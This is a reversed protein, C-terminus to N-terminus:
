PNGDRSGLARWANLDITDSIAQVSGDARALNVISSHLSTSSVIAHQPAQGSWCSPKNPGLVHNYLMWSLAVKIWPRGRVFTRLQLPTPSNAAADGCRAVYADFSGSSGDNDVVWMCRRPHATGNGAAAEALMATQSLGATIGSLAVHPI